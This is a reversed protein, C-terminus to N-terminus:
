LLRVMENEVRARMRPRMADREIFDVSRGLLQELRLQLGAQDLLSFKRCDPDVDFALDIDSDERAEGRAQSGFLYLASLGAAKLDPAVRNILARFNTSAM